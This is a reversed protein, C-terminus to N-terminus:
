SAASRSPPIITSPMGSYRRARPSMARSISAITSSPMSTSSDNRTPRSACARRTQEVRWSDSNRATPVRGPDRGRGGPGRARRRAAARDLEQEVDVLAEADVEALPDHDDAAAVDGEVGGAGGQAAAAPAVSAPPRAAGARHGARSSSARRPMIVVRSTARAATRAPTSSTVTMARSDGSSIGASGSSIASASASPM